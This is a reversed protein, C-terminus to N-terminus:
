GGQRSQRPLKDTAKVTVVTATDTCNPHSPSDQDVRVAQPPRLAGQGAHRVGWLQGPAGGCRSLSVDEHWSQRLSAQNRGPHPELLRVQEPRGSSCDSGEVVELRVVTLRNIIVGYIM